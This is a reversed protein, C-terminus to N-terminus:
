RNDVIKKSEAKSNLENAYKYASLEALHIGDRTKYEQLDVDDWWEYQGEPFYSHCMKRVDSALRSNYISFDNPPEFLIVHVGESQLGDIVSKTYELISEMEEKDVETDYAKQQVALANKNPVNGDAYIAKKNFSTRLQHLFNIILFDPRYNERFIRHRGDTQEVIDENIGRLLTTNMEVFVIEPKHQKNQILTLGTASGEKAFALNFFAKSVEQVQTADSMSSGVIVYKYENNENDNYMYQQAKLINTQYPNAGKLGKDTFLVVIFWIALFTVFYVGLNRIFGKDSSSIFLHM